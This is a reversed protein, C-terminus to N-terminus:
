SSSIMMLWSRLRVPVDRRPKMKINADLSGSRVLDDSLLTATILAKPIKLETSREFLPQAIGEHIGTISLITVLGRSSEDFDDIAIGLDDYAMPQWGCSKATDSALSLYVSPDANYHVSDDFILVRPGEPTPM